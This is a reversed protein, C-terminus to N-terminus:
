RQLREISVAEVEYRSAVDGHSRFFRRRLAGDVAVVQDPQLSLATRRTRGSWASVDITDSGSEERPIVLRFSVVRDGSPLQRESPEGSVRGVLQISNIPAEGRMPDHDIATRTTM